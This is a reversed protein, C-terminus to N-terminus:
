AIYNVNVRAVRPLTAARAAPLAAHFLSVLLDDLIQLLPGNLRDPSQRSQRVTPVDNDDCFFAVFAVQGDGSSSLDFPQFLLWLMVFSYDPGPGDCGPVPEPVKSLCM